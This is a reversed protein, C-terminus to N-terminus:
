GVGRRALIASGYEGIVDPLRALVAHYFEVFGSASNIEDFLGGPEQGIPRDGSKVEIVIRHEVNRSLQARGSTTLQLNGIDIPAVHLPPLHMNYLEAAAVGPEVGSGVIRQQFGRLEDSRDLM